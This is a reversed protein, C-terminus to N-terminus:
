NFSIMRDGLPCIYEEEGLWKKFDKAVLPFTHAQNIKDQTIGTFEITLPSLVPNRSPKVYSHFIDTMVLKGESEEIKVAGIEILESFHQQSRLVTFELDYIIYNM